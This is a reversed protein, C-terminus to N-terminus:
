TASAGGRILYRLERLTYLSSTAHSSVDCCPSLRMWSWGAERM